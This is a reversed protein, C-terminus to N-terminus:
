LLGLRSDVIDAKLVPGDDPCFKKYLTSISSDASTELHFDNQIIGKPGTLYEPSPKKSFYRIVPVQHVAHGILNDKCQGTVLAHELGFQGKYASGGPIFLNIDGIIISPVDLPQGM